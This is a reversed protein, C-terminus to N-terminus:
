RDGTPLGQKALAVRARAADAAPVEVTGGGATLQYTIGAKSLEDAMRGAEGLEVGHYLPVFEPASAWKGVLWVGVMVLAVLIGAVLRRSGNLQNLLSAM